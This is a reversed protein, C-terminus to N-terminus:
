PVFNTNKNAIGYRILEDPITKEWFWDNVFYHESKPKLTHFQNLMKNIIDVIIKWDFNNNKAFSYLKEAAAILNNKADPSLIKKMSYSQYVSSLRSTIEPHSDIKILTYKKTLYKKSKLCENFWSIPYEPISAIILNHKEIDYLFFDSLSIKNKSYFYRYKFWKSSFLFSGNEIANIIKNKNNKKLATNIKKVASLTIKSEMLHHKVFPFGQRNWFEFIIKVEVNKFFLPKQKNKIQASIKSKKIDAINKLNLSKRKKTTIFVRRNIKGSGLLPKKIIANLKPLIIKM